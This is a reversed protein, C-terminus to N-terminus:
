GTLSEVTHSMHQDIEAALAAPDDGRLLDLLRQHEEVATPPRVYRKDFGTMCLWTEAALTSFMRILRPSRAAEVM